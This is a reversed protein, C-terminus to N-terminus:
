NATLVRDIQTTVLEAAEAKAEDSMITTTHSRDSTADDPNVMVVVLTGRVEAVIGYRTFTNGTPGGIEYTGNLAFSEDAGSITPGDSVTETVTMTQRPQIATIRSCRERATRLDDVGRGDKIVALVHHGTDDSSKGTAGAFETDSGDPGRTVLAADTCESPKVTGGDRPRPHDAVLNELARGQEARWDDGVTIDDVPLSLDKASDKPPQTNSSSSPSSSASSSASSPDDRAAEVLSCSAMGLVGTLALVPALRRPM